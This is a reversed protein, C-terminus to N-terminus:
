RRTPKQLYSVRIELSASLTMKQAETIGFLM